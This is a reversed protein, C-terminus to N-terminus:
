EDETQCPFLPIITPEVEIPPENIISQSYKNKWAHNPHELEVKLGEYLRLLVTQSIVVEPVLINTFHSEPECIQGIVEPKEKVVVGEDTVTQETFVLKYVRKM